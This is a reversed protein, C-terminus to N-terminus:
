SMRRMRWTHWVRLIMTGKKPLKKASHRQLETHLDRGRCVCGKLQIYSCILVGLVFLCKNNNSNIARLITRWSTGARWPWRIASSPACRSQWCRCAGGFPLCLMAWDKIHNKKRGTFGLLQRHTLLHRRVRCHEEQATNETCPLGELLQRVQVLYRTRETRMATHNSLASKSQSGLGPSGRDCHSWLSGSAM